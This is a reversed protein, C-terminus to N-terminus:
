FKNAIALLHLSTKLNRTTAMTGMKKEFFTNNLKCNSYGLPCYLYVANETISFENPLYDNEDPMFNSENKQLFTIHQLAIDKEGAFINNNIIQQFQKKSIVLVRVYFSFHKLIANKLLLAIKLTDLYKTTFIINGSQIYTEVNIFNLQQMLSKLAEMKIINKGGVNIGRLLAIYTNLNNIKKRLINIIIIFFTFEALLYLLSM